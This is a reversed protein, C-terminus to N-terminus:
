KKKRHFDDYGKPKTFASAIEKGMRFPFLACDKIPCQLIEPKSFGSCDYCKLRIARNRQYRM